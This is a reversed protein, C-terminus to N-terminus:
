NLTNVGDAFPFAFHSGSYNFCYNDNIGALSFGATGFGFTSTKDTWGITQTYFGNSTTMTGIQGRYIWLQPDPSVSPVPSAAVNSIVCAGSGSEIVWIDGVHTGPEPAQGATIKTLDVAGAKNAADAIAEGLTMTRGDMFTAMQSLDEEGVLGLFYGYNKEFTTSQAANVPTAMALTAVVLLGVYLKQM